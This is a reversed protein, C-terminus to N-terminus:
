LHLWDRWDAKYLKNDEYEGCARMVTHDVLGVVFGVGFHGAQVHLALEKRSLVFLEM